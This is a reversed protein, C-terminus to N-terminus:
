WFNPESVAISDKLSQIGWHDRGRLKRTIRGIGVFEGECILSTQTERRPTDATGHRDDNPRDIMLLVDSQDVLCKM